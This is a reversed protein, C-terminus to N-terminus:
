AESGGMNLWRRTHHRRPRCFPPAALLCEVEVHSRSLSISMPGTWGGQRHTEPGLLRPPQPPLRASAGAAIPSRTPTGTSAAGVDSCFWGYDPPARGAKRGAPADVALGISAREAGFGHVGDPQAAVEVRLFSGGVRPCVGGRESSSDSMPLWPAARASVPALVLAPTPGGQAVSTSTALSAESASLRRERCCWRGWIRAKRSELTRAEPAGGASSPTPAGVSPHRLPHHREM